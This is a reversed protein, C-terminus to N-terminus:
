LIANLFLRRQKQHIELPLLNTLARLLERVVFRGYGSRMEKYPKLSKSTEYGGRLVNFM